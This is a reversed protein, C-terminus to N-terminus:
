GNQFPLSPVDFARPRVGPFRVVPMKGSLITLFMPTLDRGLPVSVPVRNTNASTRLETLLHQCALFLSLLVQPSQRNRGSGIRRCFSHMDEAFLGVKPRELADHNLSVQPL